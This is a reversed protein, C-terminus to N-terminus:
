ASVVFDRNNNEEASKQTVINLKSIVFSLDAILLSQIRPM